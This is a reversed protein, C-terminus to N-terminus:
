APAATVAELRGDELTCVRSCRGALAPEHTVLVMALGREAALGFLLDEVERATAADLNGTPEDALLVERSGMLARAIAVRQKEGGSLKGPRHRLRHGLGVRDLLERAERRARFCRLPWALGESVRAALLVNQLANLEPILHYAQFVFGLSRARLRNRGGEGLESVLEQHFYIQGATPRDLLGLLHLLTSKGSGSRGTVAVSEGPRVELSLGSLVTIVRPGDRYDKYVNRAVLVPPPAPVALAAPVDEAPPLPALPALPQDSM